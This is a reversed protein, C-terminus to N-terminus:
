MEDILHLLEFFMEGLVRSLVLDSPTGHQTCITEPAHLWILFVDISM